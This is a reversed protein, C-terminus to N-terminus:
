TSANSRVEQAVKWSTNQLIWERLKKGDWEEKDFGELQAVESGKPTFDKVFADALTRWPLTAWAAGQNTAYELLWTRAAGKMLTKVFGQKLGADKEPQTSEVGMCELGVVLEVEAVLKAAENPRPNDGTFFPTLGNLKFQFKSTMVSSPIPSTTDSHSASNQEQEQNSLPTPNVPHQEAPSPPLSHSAAEAQAREQEIRQIQNRNLKKSSSM